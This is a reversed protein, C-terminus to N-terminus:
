VAGGLPGPVAGASTAPQKRAGALSNSRQRVQRCPILAAWTGGGVPEKRAETADLNGEVHCDATARHCNVAQV